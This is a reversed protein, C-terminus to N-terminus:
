FKGIKKLKLLMKMMLKQNTLESFKFKIITDSWELIELANTHSCDTSWIGDKDCYDDCKIGVGQELREGNITIVEDITTLSQPSITTLLGWDIDQANLKQLFLGFILFLALFLLTKKM